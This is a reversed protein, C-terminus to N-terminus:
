RGDQPDSNDITNQKLSSSQVSNGYHAELDFEMLFITGSIMLLFMVICCIGCSCKISSSKPKSKSKKNYNSSLNHM